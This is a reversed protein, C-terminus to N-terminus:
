QPDITLQCLWQPTVMDIADKILREDERVERQLREHSAELDELNFPLQIGAEHARKLSKYARSLM